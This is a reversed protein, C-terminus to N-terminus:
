PSFFLFSALIILLGRSLVVLHITMDNELVLFVSSCFLNFHFFIFDNQIHQYQPLHRQPIHTHTWVHIQKHLTTYLYMCLQLMPYLSPYFHVKPKVLMYIIISVRLVRLVVFCFYTLNVTSSAWCQDRFFVGENSFLPFLTDKFLYLLFFFSSPGQDSDHFWFCINWPPSSSWHYCISEFSGGWFHINFHDM